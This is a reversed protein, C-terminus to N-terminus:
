TKVIAGYSNISVGLIIRSKRRRTMELGELSAQIGIM